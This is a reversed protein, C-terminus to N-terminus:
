NGNTSSGELNRGGEGMWKRLVIIPNKLLEKNSRRLEESGLRPNHPEQAQAMELAIRELLFEKPDISSNNTFCSHLHTFFEPDEKELRNMVQKAMGFVDPGTPFLNCILLHLYMALEYPHEAKASSHKFAIQLPFLWYILYPEYTGDYVYLVNLTKSAELIMQENTAFPQMCPTKEFKEIVANEVLGSVPSRTASRLKLEAVRRAVIQGFRKRITKEVDVSTITHNQTEIKLLKDLWTFSRLSNPLLKGRLRECIVPIQEHDSRLIACVSGGLVESQMSSLPPPNLKSELNDGDNTKLQFASGRRMALHLDESQVSKPRRRALDTQASKWTVSSQALDSDPDNQKTEHGALLREMKMFVLNNTDDIFNIM